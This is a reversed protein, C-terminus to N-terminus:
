GIFFVMPNYFCISIDFSLLLLSFFGFISPPRKFYFIFVPSLCLILFVIFFLLFLCTSGFARWFFKKAAQFTEQIGVPNGTVISYAVHTTGTYSIFMLVLFIFSVVLSLFSLLFNHSTQIPIVFRVLTDILVLSSFLWLIKEKWLNEWGLRFFLSIDSM